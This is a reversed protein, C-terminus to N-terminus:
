DGRNGCKRGRHRRTQTRPVRQEVRAPCKGLADLLKIREEPLKGRRRTQRQVHVWSALPVKPDYKVSVHGHKAKFQKLQDLMLRWKQERALKIPSLAGATPKARVPAKRAVQKTRMFEDGVVPASATSAGTGTNGGEMEETDKVSPVARDVDDDKGGERLM